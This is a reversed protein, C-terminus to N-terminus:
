CAPPLCATVALVVAPACYNHRAWSREIDCRCTVCSTLPFHTAIRPCCVGSYAHVARIIYDETAIRPRLDADLGRDFIKNLKIAVLAPYGM